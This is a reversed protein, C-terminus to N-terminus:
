KRKRKWLWQAVKLGISLAAGWSPKKVVSAIENIKTRKRFDRISTVRGWINKLTDVDDQYADFDKRLRNEQLAIEQRLVAKRAAIEELNNFPARKSKSMRVEKRPKRLLRPM